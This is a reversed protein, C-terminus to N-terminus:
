RRPTWTGNRLIGSRLFSKRATVVGINDNAVSESHFPNGSIEFALGTYLWFGRTNEFQYHVGRQSNDLLNSGTIMIGTSPMVELFFECDVAKFTVFRDRMENGLGWFFCSGRVDRNRYIFTTRYCEVDCEFSFCDYSGEIVCDEVLLRSSRPM